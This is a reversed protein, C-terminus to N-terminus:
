SNSVLKRIQSDSIDEIQSKGSSIESVKISNNDVGVVNFEAEAAALALPLGVYGLGVVAIKEKKM